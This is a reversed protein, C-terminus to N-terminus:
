TPHGLGADFYILCNHLQFIHSLFLVLPRFHQFFSEFFRQVSQARETAFCCILVFGQLKQELLIVLNENERSRGGGAVLQPLNQPDLALSGLDLLVTVIQASDNHVIALTSALRVAPSDDGNFVAPREDIVVNFFDARALGEGGNRSSEFTLAQM